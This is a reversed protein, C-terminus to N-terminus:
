RPAEDLPLPLHFLLRARHYREDLSDLRVGRGTISDHVFYNMGRRGDPHTGVFVGLHAARAIARFVILDGPLIPASCPLLLAGFRARLWDELLRPDVDGARCFADPYAPLPGVDIGAATWAIFALGVCDVGGRPDRGEHLHPHGILNLAAARAANRRPGPDLGIEAFLAALPTSM